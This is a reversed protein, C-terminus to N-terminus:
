REVNLLIECDCYGGRSEFFALTAEIDIGGMAAMAAKAYRHVNAGADGDCWEMSESM